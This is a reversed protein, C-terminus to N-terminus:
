WVLLKDSKARLPPATYRVRKTEGGTDAQSCAVRSPKNRSPYTKPERSSPSSSGFITHRTLSTTSSSGPKVASTSTARRSRSSCAPKM